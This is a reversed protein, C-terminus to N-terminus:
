EDIDMMEGEDIMKKGEEERMRQEEARMLHCVRGIERILGRVDLDEELNGLVGLIDSAVTRRVWSKWENMQWLGRTYTEMRQARYKKHAEWRRRQATTLAEEEAKKELTRNPIWETWQNIMGPNHVTRVRAREPETTFYDTLLWPYYQFLTTQRPPKFVFEGYLKIGILTAQLLASAHWPHFDEPERLLIPNNSQGDHHKYYFPKRKPAPEPSPEPSPPKPPEYLIASESLSPSLEVEVIEHHWDSTDDTPIPTDTHPAADAPAATTTTIAAATPHDAPTHPSPSSPSFSSSSSSSGANAQTAADATRVKERKSLLPGFISRMKSPMEFTDDKNNILLNPNAATTTTTRSAPSRPFSSFIRSAIYK